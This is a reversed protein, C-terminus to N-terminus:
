LFYTQLYAMFFYKTAGKAKIIMNKPTLTRKVEFLMQCIINADIPISNNKNPTKLSYLLIFVFYPYTCKTSLVLSEALRVKNPIFAKSDELVIKQRLNMKTKRKM